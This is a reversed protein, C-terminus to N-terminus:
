ADTHWINIQWWWVWFFPAVYAPNYWNVNINWSMINTYFHFLVFSYLFNADKSLMLIYVYIYRHCQSTMVVGNVLMGAINFCTHCSVTVVCTRHNLLCLSLICFHDGNLFCQPSVMPQLITSQPFMSHVAIFMVGYCCPMLLNSHTSNPHIWYIDRQCPWSLISQQWCFYWLYFVLLFDHLQKVMVSSCLM